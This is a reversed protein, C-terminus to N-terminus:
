YDEYTWVLFGLGGLESLVLIVWFVTFIISEVHASNQAETVIEKASRSDLDIRGGSGSQVGESLKLFATGSQPLQLVDYSTRKDGEDANDFLDIDINFLGKSEVYVYQGTEGNIIDKADISSYHLGFLAMPYERDAMTVKTGSVEWHGSDDWTYYYETHCNTVNGDEDYDCEERSHQTYTEETKNVAPFEKNMEPFKVTDVQKITIPAFVYGQKTDISHNLERDNSVQLATQYMRAKQEAGNTIAEYIWTGCFVLFVGGAVVALSLLLKKNTLYTEPKM